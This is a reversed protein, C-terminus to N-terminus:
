CLIQVFEYNDQGSAFFETISCFLGTTDTESTMGAWVRDPEDHLRDFYGAVIEDDWEALTREPINLALYENFLPINDLFMKHGDGNYKIYLEKADSLLMM